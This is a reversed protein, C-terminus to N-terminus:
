DSQPRFWPILFSSFDWVLKELKGVRRHGVYARRDGFSSFLYFVTSDIYIFLGIKISFKQVKEPTNSIDLIVM